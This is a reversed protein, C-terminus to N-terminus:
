FALSVQAGFLEDVKDPDGDEWGRAVNKQYVLKALSRRAIRCGLGYEARRRNYDWPYSEGNSEQLRTFDMRDWRAAVYFGLPLVYRGELSYGSVGLDGLAPTQWTSHFAEGRMEAHQIEFEADALVLRQDYDTVKRGAPLAAAVADSLYPGRSGSLGVRVGAVPMLGLRGLITKGGNEDAGPNPRGPTGNVMGLTLELPRASGTLLVGFDWWTDYLVTMGPLAAPASSGYGGSGPGPNAYSVGYPGRGAQNLLIDANAPLQDWRLSTHYQHFLPLGMLPNRNSYTRPGLAGILWPVKGALLHVDREDRPTWKMYAGVVLPGRNEDYRFESYAELRESVRGDAFLTLRYPDFPSDNRNLVLANGRSTLALDLLGRLEIDAAGAGRAFTCLALGALGLPVLAALALSPLRLCTGRPHDNM